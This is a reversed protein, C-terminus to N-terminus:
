LLYEPYKILLQEPSSTLYKIDYIAITSMSMNDTGLVVWRNDWQHRNTSNTIPCTYRPPLYICPVTRNYGFLFHGDIMACSFLSPKLKLKVLLPYIWDVFKEYPSKKYTM